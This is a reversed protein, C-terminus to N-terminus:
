QNGALEQPHSPLHQHQLAASLLAVSRLEPVAGVLRALAACRVVVLGVRPRARIWPPVDVANAARGEMPCPDARSHEGRVELEVGAIAHAAVPRDRGGLELREVLLRLAREAHRPPTRARTKTSAASPMSFAPM